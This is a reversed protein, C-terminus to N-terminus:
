RRYRRAAADQAHQDVSRVTQLKTYPIVIKVSFQNGTRDIEFEHGAAYHHLLRQRIQSIGLGHGSAPEAGADPDISNSLLLTLRGASLGAILTVNCSPSDATVGYKIANEILPQLIMNPIAADLSEPSVEWLINLRDPFRRAMVQVYLRSFELEEALSVFESENRDLSIRLLEALDALTDYAESKRDGLVLSSVTNLANFLFHPQLQGKLRALQAQALQAQLLSALRERQLYRQYYAVIHEIGIVVWFALFYYTSHRSIVFTLMPGFKAPQPQQNTLWLIWQTYILLYALTLVVGATLLVGFHRWRQRSDLRFRAGLYLILPTFLAWTYWVAAKVGFLEWWTYPYDGQPYFWWHLASAFAVVAWFGLYILIRLGAGPVLDRFLGSSEIRKVTGESEQGRDPGGSDIPDHIEM